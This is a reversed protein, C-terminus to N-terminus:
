RQQQPSAGTLTLPRIEFVTAPPPLPDDRRGVVIFPGSLKINAKAKMGATPYNSIWFMSMERDAIRLSVLVDSSDIVKVVEAAKGSAGLDGVDGIAVKALNLPAAASPNREAELRAIGATLAEFEATRQRIYADKHQQDCFNLRVETGVRETLVTVERGDNLMVSGDGMRRLFDSIIAGKKAAEILRQEEALRAALPQKRDELDRNRSPGAQKTNDLGARENTM